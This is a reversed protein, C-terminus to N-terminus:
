QKSLKQRYIMLTTKVAVIYVGSSLDSTSLKVSTLGGSPPQISKLLKGTIDYLNVELIPYKLSNIYTFDSAPNPYIEVGAPGAFNVSVVPSFYFNGDKDFEKLRYYNVGVLPNNDNVSYYHPIESEGVAKVEAIAQFSSNDVSRQIEFHDVLHEMSTAWSVLVHDHNIDKATFSLLTIPLPSSGLVTFNNIEGTSLVTNNSSTIAMGYHPANTADTGFHLDVTSGVQNWTIDDASIFASYTTGSKSIKVWYPLAHGALPVITVPSGAVDRYEFVFSTGNNVSAIFAFRSTNSLSDRVMIGIQNNPSVQDQQIIQGSVDYDAVDNSTFAYQFADVDGSINGSGTLQYLTPGLKCTSGAIGIDGLDLNFYRVPLALCSNVPCSATTFSGPAPTSKSTGCDTQITYDYLTGCTLASLQQSNTPSTRTIFSSSLNNRYQIIYQNAGPQADWSLIEMSPDPTASTSFDVDIWYSSSMFTLTPFLPGTGYTYVGGNALATLPFNTVPNLLVNKDGMHHTPFYVAAVYTTGATIAVPASFTLTQWGNLSEVTTAGTAMVAGVSSYLIGTHTQGPPFAADEYFRLGTIFGSISSTFQVGLTVAADDGSPSSPTQTPFINVNSGPSANLISPAPCTVSPTGFVEFDFIGYPGTGKTIGVMSVYRGSFAGDFETTASTNGRVPDLTTWNIGDNSTKLDFDVGFTSWNILIRCVDFRSGLDIYISDINTGNGSIWATGPNGDDVNSPVFGSGAFSLATVPKGLAVDTLCSANTKLGYVNLQNKNATLYVKGLAITPCSMKNFVNLHDVGPNMDSNWLEKTIDSANMAHLIGQCTSGNANCGNQAQVAWLIGTTPDTGNSSVSMFGGSGGTPGLITTNTIETGLLGGVIPYAKLPSNEGYQYAYQTPGGFYAFSSHMECPHVVFRSQLVNNKAPNFGGLNTQDLIFLSDDKNGTLLHNTGPLLMVQIPFDKDADNLAVYDFPTFYSSLTLDPALKIVSEGRNSPDTAPANYFVIEGSGGGFADEFQANGTTFYLNGAADVAPATGSMWIGGRGDNPTTVM